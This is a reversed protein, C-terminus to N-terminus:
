TEQKPELPNKAPEAPKPLSPMKSGQQPPNTSPQEGTGTPSPNPHPKGGQPVAPAGAPAGQQEPAPGLLKRIESQPSEPYGLALLLDPPAMRWVRLVELAYATAATLVAVNGRNEISFLVDQAARLAEGPHDLITVPLADVGSIMKGLNMPDPRQSVPPGTMLVERVHEYYNSLRAGPAAVSEFRGETIVSFYQSGDKILGRELLKDAADVKGALTSFLPSVQECEAGSILDLQGSTFSVIGDPDNAGAVSKIREPDCYQALIQLSLSSSGSILFNFASLFGTQFKVANAEVLALAAGSKLSAEPNGRAVQNVGPLMEMDERVSSKLKFYTDKLQFKDLISPKNMEGGPYRIVNLGDRVEEYGLEAGEPMLIDNAGLADMNTMGISLLADYYEQLGILDWLSSYGASGVDMFEEPVMETIPLEKYPLPGDFRVEDGVIITYRGEPLSPTPKHILHYEYVVDTMRRLGFGFSIQAALHAALPDQPDALEDKLHPMMAILDYKNRTHRIIFWDHDEEERDMDCICQLPNLAKYVLDGQQNNKDPDWFQWLYGKGYVLARLAVKVLQKHFRKTYHYYELLRSATPIQARAQATSNSARPKVSVKTSTTINLIYRGISRLHNARAGLKEGDEGFEIIRSAEHVAGSDSLGYFATYSMNYLELLGSESLQEYYENIRDKIVGPMDDKESAAWYEPDEETQGEQEPDLNEDVQM